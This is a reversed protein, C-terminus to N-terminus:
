LVQLYHEMASNIDGSDAAMSAMNKHTSYKLILGPDKLPRETAEGNEDVMTTAAQDLIFYVIEGDVHGIITPKPCATSPELKQIMIWKGVDCNFFHNHYRYISLLSGRVKLEGFGPMHITSLNVAMHVFAANRQASFVFFRLKNFNARSDSQYLSHVSAICRILLLGHGQKFTSIGVSISKGVVLAVYCRSM